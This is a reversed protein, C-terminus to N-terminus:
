KYHGKLSYIYPVDGKVEYIIRHEENIRSSRKDSFEHKLAEPKGIGDYPDEFIALILQEIKKQIAKNGPKKWFKIDLLSDDVFQIEM